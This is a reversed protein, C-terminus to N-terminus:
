EARWHASFFRIVLMVIMGTLISLVAIFVGSEIGTGWRQILIWILSAYISGFIFSLGHKVQNMM